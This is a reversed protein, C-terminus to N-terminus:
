RSACCTAGGCCDCAVGQLASADCTCAPCACSAGCCACGTRAAVAEPKVGLLAALTVLSATMLMARRIM